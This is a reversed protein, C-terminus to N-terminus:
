ASNLLRKQAQMLRILDTIRERDMVGRRGGRCVAGRVAVLDPRLSLLQPLSQRNVSGALAVQLEYTRACRTLEALQAHTLYHQLNGRTKDFTDVLLVRCDLRVAQEVVDQWRPARAQVRDAYAVAVRQTRQPLAQWVRAWRDPWDSLEACGSLGLKAYALSAPLNQLSAPDCEILEGLAASIPLQGGVRDVIQRLVAAAPRGLSGHDPDKVDLVDVGADIATQCEALSRVSVLLRTV